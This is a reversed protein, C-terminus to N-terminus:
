ESQCHLQSSPCSLGTRMMPLMSENQLDQTRRRHKNRELTASARQESLDIRQQLEPSLSPSLEGSLTGSM